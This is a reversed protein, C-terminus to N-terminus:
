RTIPGVRKSSSASGPKIPRTQLVGALSLAEWARGRRMRALVSNRARPPQDDDSGRGSWWRSSGQGGDPVPDGHTSQQGQNAEDPLILGYPVAVLRLIGAEVILYVFQALDASVQSEPRVAPTLSDGKNGSIKRWATHVPSVRFTLLLWLSM